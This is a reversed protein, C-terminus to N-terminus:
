QDFLRFDNEFLHAQKHFSGTPYHIIYDFKSNVNGSYLIVFQYPFGPLRKEAAIEGGTGQHFDACQGLCFNKDLDIGDRM